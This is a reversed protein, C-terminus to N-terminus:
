AIPFSWDAVPKIEKDAYITLQMNVPSNTGAGLITVEHQGHWAYAGDVGATGFEIKYWLDTRSNAKVATYSTLTYNSLFTMEGNNRIGPINMTQMDKLTTVDIADPASTLDPYEKIEVLEDWTAGADDSTHLTIPHTLIAKKPM